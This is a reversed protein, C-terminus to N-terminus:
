PRAELLAEIRATRERVDAMSETLETLLARHAELQDRLTAQDAVYPSESAVIHRVEAASTTNGAFAAFAGGLTVLATASVTAVYKWVERM